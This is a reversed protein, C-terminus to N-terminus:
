TLNLQTYLNFNNWVYPFNENLFFHSIECKKDPGRGGSFHVRYINKKVPASFHKQWLFSYKGKCVWLVQIIWCQFILFKGVKLHPPVGEGWLFVSKKVSKCSNSITFYFHSFSWFKDLGGWGLLFNHSNTQNVLQFHSIDIYFCLLIIFSNFSQLCFVGINYWLSDSCTEFVHIGSELM